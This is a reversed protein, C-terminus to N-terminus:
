LDAPHLKSCYIATEMFITLATAPALVERVELIPRACGYATVPGWWKQPVPGFRRHTEDFDAKLLQMVRPWLLKVLDIGSLQPHNNRDVSPWGEKESGIVSVVYRFMDDLVPAREPPLGAAVAGGLAVNWACGRALAADNSALVANLGDGFFYRKGTKTTAIKLGSTGEAVAMFSMQAAFGTIAGSAAVYTEAHLRGDRTLWRGLNNAINGSALNCAVTSPDGEWPMSEKTGGGEGGSGAGADTTSGTPTKDAAAKEPPAARKGFM